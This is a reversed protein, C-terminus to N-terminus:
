KTWREFGKDLVGPKIQSDYSIWNLTQIERELNYNKVVTHPTEM